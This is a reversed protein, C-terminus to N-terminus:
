GRMQRVEAEINMLEIHTAITLWDQEALESPTCHYVDRCLRLELWAWPQPRSEGTQPDVANGVALWAWM